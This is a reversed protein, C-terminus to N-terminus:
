AEGGEVSTPILGALHMLASRLDSPPAKAGEALDDTLMDRLREHVMGIVALCRSRTGVESDRWLQVLDSLLSRASENQSALRARLGAGGPASRKARQLEVWAGILTEGLARPEDSGAHSGVEWTGVGVWALELGEDQMRRRAEPTHFRETLQRRPIHLSKNPQSSPGDQAEADATELTPQLAM